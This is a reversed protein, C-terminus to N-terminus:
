PSVHLFERKGGEQPNDLGDALVVASSVGKRTCEKIADVVVVPPLHIIALEVSDDIEMINSYVKKGFLEGGKPNVLYVRGDYGHQLSPVPNIMSGDREPMNSPKTIDVITVPGLVWYDGNAFQGVIYDRDFKWTIGFQSLQSEAYINQCLLLIVSLACIILRNMDRKCEM